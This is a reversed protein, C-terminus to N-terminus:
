QANGLRKDRESWLVKAWGLVEPHTFSDKTSDFFSQLVKNQAREYEDAQVIMEYKDLNKAVHAEPSTQDEYEIWLDFIERSVHEHDIDAAITSMAQHELRRKEDPPVRTDHPVIDGILIDYTILTNHHLSKLLQM